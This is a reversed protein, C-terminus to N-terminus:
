KKVFKTTHQKNTSDTITVLYVGKDLSAVDLTTSDGELVLRGQMNYVEVHAIGQPVQLHVVTTAPNPYLEISAAEQMDRAITVVSSYTSEKVDTMKLRYYCTTQTVPQNDIFQYSSNTSSQTPKVLGIAEFNKGDTSRQIEYSVMNKEAATTWTLCNQKGQAKGQFSTLKVPLATYQDTFILSFRDGFSAANSNSISFAYSPTVRLNTITNTLKDRLLIARTVPVESFNSFDLTYSRNSTSTVRLTFTDSGSNTFYDIVNTQVLRNNPTVFALNYSSNLLKVADEKFVYNTSAGTKFTLQAIDYQVTDLWMKVSMPTSTTKFYATGTSTTKDSEKFTVSQGAQNVLVFFGQGISIQGSSQSVYNKTNPNIIYFFNDVGSTKTVTAWDIQSPYPNGVLNWGQDSLAGSNDYDLAVSIDGSNIAGTYTLAFSNPAVTTSTISSTQTRDGRFFVLAGKGTPWSNSINTINKWGRSASEEYYLISSTTGNADFGNTAGGPGTVFIDDVLQAYTASSVPTSMTRWGRQSAAGGVMYRQVTVNGTISAGSPLTAIRGTGSLDSVLTINGGAALTGASVTLTGNNAIQMANGVTVTAGSRNLTLDKVKNTTGPTTQDFNITSITGSGGITLKSSGDGVFTPTGVINGNVTLTNGNLTIKKGSEVNLKGTVTVDGTLSADNNINLNNITGPTPNPSSATVTNSFPTFTIDDIALADDAGSADFDVWRLWLTAGNSISLGTITATITTRNASSNGDLAGTTGTTVPATFDLSTFTTWTGTTLSSADTSYSFVLKDTRGTAGLRWQEGTYTIKISTITEGSSNIFKTGITSTVSGSLLTGLARDGSTTGFSYTDGSSVSGTGATYTSNAGTGSESFYWGTPMTSSSGTNALSNLNETLDTGANDATYVANDLIFVNNTGSATSYNQSSNTGINYEFVAFHYTTSSTLGTVTVSNGTGDYVVRNGSGQDTATTFISNVGSYSSADTPTISVASGSRAIVVRRSGNGGSFNVVVSNTTQTGFTISSSTTPQSALAVATVAVNQTTANTATLAINGSNTGNASGPNFRVYVFSSSVTENTPTFTLSSSYPGANSTALEFNTPATITLNSILNNASITFNDEASQAPYILTGFDIPNASVNSVTISPTATTFSGTLPSTTNYCNTADDYEYFALHYTTNYTLGTLSFSNATGNYVVYGAGIADGSAFATNATYSTTNTPSTSVASGQRAIVLVKTGNGRTFSVTASTSKILSTALSTAQTTPPTCGGTTSVTYSATATGDGAANVGRLQVDYSTGSVLGTITIPSSTTGASTFSSGGNISYKYDTIANGGTNGATFNVELTTNSPTVSNITPASPTTYPTASSSSSPTGDGAANVALLQVNYSTGNTLGSIVIPSTTQSPSCATFSSGGNTSYKYNTISSGGTAGATFAVSLQGNGPTIAGLTPASPTTYPTAATSSTATGSGNANVARIQVNYSTGNTLSTIVIPSTTQAPSCATFSTGGNTSYEYNSISSGNNSSPATFAVSLQSNGSTITGMTPASPPGPLFNAYEIDDVYLFAANSASSETFFTFGTINGTALTGATAGNNVVRTGDVWLDWTKTALTYSTGSRTYTTSSGSNNAYIEIQQDADKTFGHSSITTNAGSVRRVVSSISGSAYAITFSVLSNNYHSTYGQNDSATTNLGLSFNINGAGTSTTRVKAKAYTFNSPSNWDYVGFKNTATSTAANLQVESGTGLSTGPNALVLSGGATGIRVRYTGGNSPTTTFFATNGTGSNSNNATGTGTGFDYTWPQAKLDPVLVGVLLAVIFLNRTYKNLM